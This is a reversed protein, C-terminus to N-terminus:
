IVWGFESRKQLQQDRVVSVMFLLESKSMGEMETYTLNKSNWM